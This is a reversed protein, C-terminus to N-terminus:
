SMERLNLAPPRVQDVSPTVSPRNLYTSESERILVESASEKALEVSQLCGSQIEGAAQSNRTYRWTVDPM